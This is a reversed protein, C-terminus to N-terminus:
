GGALERLLFARSSRWQRLVTRRSKGVVGAVEDVTLGGFFRLEVIQARDSDLATLSRLAQDLALFDLAQHERGLLGDRLTVTQGRRKKAGRRRAHDVLVQRMARAATALFHERDAYTHSRANRLRLYVENVLATPQLSHDPREGRLYSAALRRLEDYIQAFLEDASETSHSSRM